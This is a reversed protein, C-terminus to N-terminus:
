GVAHVKNFIERFANRKSEIQVADIAESVLDAPAVHATESLTGFDKSLLRVAAESVGLLQLKTSDKAINKLYKTWSIDIPKQGLRGQLFVRFQFLLVRLRIDNTPVVHAMLNKMNEEMSNFRQNLVINENELCKVKFKLEINENELCKVENELSEVKAALRKCGACETTTVATTNTTTTTPPITSV